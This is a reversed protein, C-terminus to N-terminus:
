SALRNLTLRRSMWREERARARALLTNIMPRAVRIELRLWGDAM